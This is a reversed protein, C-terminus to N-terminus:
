EGKPAPWTRAIHQSRAAIQELLRRATRYHKVYDMDARQAATLPRVANLTALVGRLYALREEPSVPVGHSDGAAATAAALVAAHRERQEAQRQAPTEARLGMAEIDEASLRERLTNAIHYRALKQMVKADDPRYGAEGYLDAVAARYAGTRGAWDPDGTATLFHERLSVSADGLDRLLLTRRDRDDPALSRLARLLRVVEAETASKTAM